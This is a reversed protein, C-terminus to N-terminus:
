KITNLMDHIRHQLTHKEKILTYGNIAIRLRENEHTLYYETKELLEDISRFTEINKGISFLEDVEEQYNTMCFGGSAMIDYVRQPVGTEISPLTINLNIRSAYFVKSMEDEYNVRGHCNVGSLAPHGTDNTYLDINHRLALANLVTIRDIEALKKPLFMLALYENNRLTTPNAVMNGLSKQIASVSSDSISPWSKTNHWTHANSLLYSNFEQGVDESLYQSYQNYPNNHYLTGVFSIDSSYKEIDSDTIDISGIRSLNAGLPLYFVNAHTIQKLRLYESKDFIFTYNNDNELEPSFLSALPSDYTWSVYPISYSHTIDSLMPIFMYSLVYEPRVEEIASKIIPRQSEDPSVPNLALNPIYSVDHGMETLALMLDNVSSITSIFLIKM